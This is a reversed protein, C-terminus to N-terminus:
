FKVCYYCYYLLSVNFLYVKRAKGECMFIRSYYKSYLYRLSYLQICKASSSSPLFSIACFLDYLKSSISSRLSLSLPPLVHDVLRPLSESTECAKNTDVFQSTRIRTELFGSRSKANRKSHRETPM